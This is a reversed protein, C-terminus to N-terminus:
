KNRPKVRRVERVAEFVSWLRGLPGRRRPIPRYVVRPHWTLEEGDDPAIMIIDMRKALSLAQKYYIRDDQAVHRTTVIAAKM